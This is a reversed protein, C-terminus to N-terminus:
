ETTKVTGDPNLERAQQLSRKWHPCEDVLFGDANKHICHEERGPRLEKYHNIPGRGMSVETPFKCTDCLAGYLKIEFRQRNAM